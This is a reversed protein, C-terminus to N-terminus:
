AGYLKAYGSQVEAIFASDRDRWYRPDRIMQRLSAEDAIYESQGPRSLAPESAGPFAMRHLALVGDYSRSLEEFLPAPLNNEGWASLEARLHGWKEAGGFQASLRDHDAQYRVDEIMSFFNDYHASSDPEGVFLAPGDSLPPSEDPAPFPPPQEVPNDTQDAELFDPAARTELPPEAPPNITEDAEDPLVQAPNDPESLRDTM